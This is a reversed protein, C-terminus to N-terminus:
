RRNRRIVDRVAEIVDAVDQDTLRPNLPLSLMREYSGLTVPFDDPRYGYTERYYPHLHIPLFHVSTGINRATLEDLFADRGIRLTELRLRVVFLHWAHEVEPREIPLELAEEDAFARRYAAVVECRRQQFRALKRLQWLGLAAQVDTMNYKYGPFVIEYSWSKRSAGRRIGHLSALRAREVLEEGGTLMGGEGTTLNKTAYFSFAAPNRGSGILRGKYRAPLAHAADELVLLDRARALEHIPDLDAPHGAFHVPIIARTRPTIAAAVREPDINLTDPEVDVLVPRARVHEIANVTAAFTMPTTIVEAGPEIGAALLATHLAGTCSNLALTAPAGMYARFEAEFRQTKPGTTIWDARLTDVVEDVEEAGILPPSFSLFATRGPTADTREVDAHHTM